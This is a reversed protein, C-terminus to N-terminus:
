TNRSQLSVIPNLGKKQCYYECYNQVRLYFEDGVILRLRSEVAFQLPTYNIDGMRNRRTCDAVIFKVQRLRQDDNSRELFRFLIKTFLLFKEIERLKRRRRPRRATYPNVQLTPVPTAQFTNNQQLAAYQLLIDRTYSPSLSLPLPSLRTTSALGAANPPLQLPIRHQATPFRPYSPNM